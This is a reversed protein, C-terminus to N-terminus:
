FYINNDISITNNYNIDVFLDLIEYYFNLIILYFYYNSSM